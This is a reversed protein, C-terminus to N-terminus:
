IEVWVGGPEIGTCTGAVIGNTGSNSSVTAADEVYVDRYLLARTVPNAASNALFFGKKRMLTVSLDGDSGGTNDKSERTIGVVTLGAADAAPVGYGAANVAAMKGADVVAGGALALSPMIRDRYPTNRDAM